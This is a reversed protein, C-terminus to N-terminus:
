GDIEIDGALALGIRSRGMRGGLPASSRPDVRAQPNPRFPLAVAVAPGKLPNEDPGSRFGGVHKPKTQIDSSNNM